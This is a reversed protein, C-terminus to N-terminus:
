KISFDSVLLKKETDLYKENDENQKQVVKKFAKLKEAKEM